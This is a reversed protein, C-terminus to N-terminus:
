SLKVTVDLEVVDVDVVIVVVVCLIHQAGVACSNRSRM